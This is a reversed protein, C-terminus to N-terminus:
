QHKALKIRAYTGSSKFYTGHYLKGNIGRVTVPVRTSHWGFAPCRYERGFVVSGLTEGMWTTAIGKTQNIYLFYREPPNHVFEYVEIANRQENTMRADEPVEEPKYCAWGNRGRKTDVFAEHRKSLEKLTLYEQESITKV